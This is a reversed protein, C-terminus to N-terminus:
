KKPNISSQFILETSAIAPNSGVLNSMSCTGYQALGRGDDGKQKGLYMEETFASWSQVLKKRKPKM